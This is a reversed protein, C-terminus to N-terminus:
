KRQPPQRRPKLPGLFKAKEDSTQFKGHGYNSGTDIWKLNVKELASRSTSVVLTKRITIPRRAPGQVSGKLLIFDEKVEGYRVFGGLPTISKQTLDFETSGNTHVEKGNETRVGKGVRYVKKNIETRHHFGKQGARPVAWSVRAPHWAGICAVKRLGKHTKRPLKKVGFRSVVGKFGKGKNVGIVDVLEDQAFVGDISVQKELLDQAFKVKDATTGGNVQIEIIHAKKQLGIKRSQTQVILRVVQAYKKVTAIDHEISAKDEVFKKSYKTFATKKACYWKKYFRRLAEQSLHQAWITKLARIGRPTEVYGVFGIVILPPTEIVTVAELVERKHMKSGLKDLDRVVHTMGAKHGIFATLHPPKSPDDKPFSRVRGRFTKSRKKPLFGLSGHRPAEFKRHSM